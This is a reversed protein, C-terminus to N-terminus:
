VPLVWSMLKRDGDPGYFSEFSPKPTFTIEPIDFTHAIWNGDLFGKMCVFVPSFLKNWVEEDGGEEHGGIHEDAKQPEDM